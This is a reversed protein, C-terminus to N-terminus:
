RSHGIVVGLDGDDAAARGANGGPPAQRLGGGIAKDDFRPRPEASAGIADVIAVAVGDIEAAAPQVGGVAVGPDLNGFRLTAGDVLAHRRPLATRQRDAKRRSLLFVERARLLFEELPQLPRRLTRVPRCGGIKLRLPAPIIQEVGDAGIDAAGLKVPERDVVEFIVGAVLDVPADDFAVPRCDGGIARLQAANEIARHQLDIVAALPQFDFRRAADDGGILRDHRQRGRHEGVLFEQEIRRQRFLRFRARPRGSPRSAM